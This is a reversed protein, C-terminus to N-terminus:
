QRAFKQLNFIELRDRLEAELAPSLTPGSYEAKFENGADFVTLLEAKPDDFNESLSLPLGTQLVPFDRMTPILRARPCMVARIPKNQATKL